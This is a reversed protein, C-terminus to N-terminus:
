TQEKISIFRHSNIHADLNNRVTEEHQEYLYRAQECRLLPLRPMTHILGHCTLYVPVHVLRSAKPNQIVDVM